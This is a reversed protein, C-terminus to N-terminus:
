GAPTDQEILVEHIDLVAESFAAKPVDGLRLRTQALPNKELAIFEISSITQDKVDYRANGAFVGPNMTAIAAVGAGPFSRKYYRRHIDPDRDWGRRVLTDRIAGSCLKEAEFRTVRTGEAEAAEPRYTARGLQPFPSIIQYDSFHSAWARRLDDELHLPHVVGVLVGPALSIERDDIDVLTEDEATRFGELFAGDASYMGWLLRRTFHIMLPHQKLDKIWAGVPWRRGEIMDQELRFSQVNLAEELQGTIVSWDLRAREVLAPDDGAGHPPLGDLIDGEADRVRVEFHDDIHLTFARPGYSFTRSGRADLGCDPTIRDSLESVSLGRDKAAGALAGIAAEMVSPVVQKQRLGMLALLATDTGIARFVDLAAIARRRGTDSAKPWAGLFPALALATRDGGLVGTAGLIWEYRGNWDKGKWLEVLHLAFADRSDADLARRLRPALARLASGGRVAARLMGEVLGKELPEGTKRLLSPADKIRIISPLTKPETIALLEAQLPFLTEELDAASVGQASAALAIQEEVAAAEPGALEARSLRFLQYAGGKGGALVPLLRRGQERERKRPATLLAGIREALREASGEDTPIEAASETKKM